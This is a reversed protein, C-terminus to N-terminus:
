TGVLSDNKETRSWCASVNSHSTLGGSTRTPFSPVLQKLMVLMSSRIWVHEQKCDYMVPLPLLANNALQADFRRSCLCLSSNKNWCKTPQEVDLKCTNVCWLQEHVLRQSINTMNKIINHRLQGVSQQAKFRRQVVEELQVVHSHGLWFLIKSPTEVPWGTCVDTMRSCLYSNMVM